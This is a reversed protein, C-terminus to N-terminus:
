SPFCRGFAALLRPSGKIRIKRTALALFLNKEGALFAVWTRSDAKVHIDHTGLHGEQVEITKNRIVVTGLCEEDGTFTFHYTADLNESQDRQFVLPLSEFFGRVSNPRLGNGVKKITKHPFRRAVHTEGDSGAVVFINEKREQLPKVVDALYRKRNDLFQGIVEEGAPCVAMCYSSKNCIGYSLSQWMSVTEPDSVMGRYNRVNRSCVMREVWDSFGGMRDRYNHTMCTTFNFHGDSGIAGVPCASVCLKCELCPNYDLPRDYVTAERNLLITGLVIFSGFRPHIVLRHHAIAGLGAAAAIPKHSVPWIKGPWRELDMPFGSSTNLAQVGMEQLAGVVKHAAYNAEDFTQLFELDSVARSVCRINERNLQFIFSVVTKTHPFVGLIDDRQDALEPREIEVLGVDDAGAERVLNKLWEADLKTPPETDPHTGKKDRYRKVTPHEDLKM